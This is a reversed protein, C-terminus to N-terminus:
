WDTTSKDAGIAVKSTRKQQNKDYDPNSPGVSQELSDHPWYLPKGQRPIFEALDERDIVFQEMTMNEYPVLNRLREIEKEYKRIRDNSKEVFERVEEKVQETLQELEQYYKSYDKIEHRLSFTHDLEQYDNQFEMVM